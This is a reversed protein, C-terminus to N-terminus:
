TNMEEIYLVTDLAFLQKMVQDPEMNIYLGDQSNQNEQKPIITSRAM